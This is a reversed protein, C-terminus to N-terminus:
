AFIAGVPVAAGGVFLHGGATVLLCVVAFVTAQALRLAPERPVCGGDHRRCNEGFAM